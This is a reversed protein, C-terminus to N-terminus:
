LLIRGSSLLNNSLMYSFRFAGYLSNCCIQYFLPKDFAFITLSIAKPFYFCVILEM